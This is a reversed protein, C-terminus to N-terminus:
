RPHAEQAGGPRRPEPRPRWRPSADVRLGAPPGTRDRSESRSSAARRLHGAPPRDPSQQLSRVRGPERRVQVPRRSAPTSFFQLLMPRIEKRADSEIFHKKGAFTEYGDKGNALYNTLALKYTKEMLIPKGAVTLSDINIRQLQPRAPNFEFSIGSVQPYRGELAPYKSLGLELGRYLDAGTIEVMCLQKDFPYIDFIDGICYLKGAEYEKDARISGSSVVACDAGTEKLMLDCILSIFPAESRRM